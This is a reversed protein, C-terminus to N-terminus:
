RKFRNIPQCTHTKSSLFSYLLYCPSSFTTVDKKRKGYLYFSFFPVNNVSILSIFRQCVLTLVPILLFIPCDPWFINGVRKEQQNVNFAEKIMEESVTCHSFNVYKLQWCDIFSLTLSTLCFTNLFFANYNAILSIYFFHSTSDVCVYTYIKKRFHRSSCKTILLRYYYGWLHPAIFSFLSHKM